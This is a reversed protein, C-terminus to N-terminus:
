IKIVIRDQFVIIFNLQEDRFLLSLLCNQNSLTAPKATTSATKDIGSNAIEYQSSRLRMRAGRIIPAKTAATRLPIESNILLFLFSFHVFEFQYGLKLPRFVEAPPLGAFPYGLRPFFIDL